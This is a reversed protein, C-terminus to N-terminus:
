PCMVTQVFQVTRLWMLLESFKFCHFIGFILVFQVPREPYCPPRCAHAHWFSMCHLSTSLVLFSSSPFLL